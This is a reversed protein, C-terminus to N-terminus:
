QEDDKPAIRRILVTLILVLITLIIGITTAMGVQGQNFALNYVQFAPVTTSTGPGGGTTVFVIDFTKLAAIVTLTLAISIPGRLGPLTVAFFERIAGAGDTRAADYLEGPIQSIGTLFLVLCLGIEMWTGILGVAPLATAFEGLWTHTLAGLGLGRLITNVLGGPAYISVWIVGIVVAAIVQPLFILTQFIGIGRMRAGRQLVAALFLALVSPLVAFFFVLIASHWFSQLLTPDTLAKAYNGLGTWTAVSLGDWQFLSIWVSQGLPYLVFAAVVAFAPAIYLYARAQTRRPRHRASAAGGEHSERAVTPSANAPKHTTM